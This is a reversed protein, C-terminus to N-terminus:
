IIDTHMPTFCCVSSKYYNTITYVNNHNITAPIIIYSYFYNGASISIYKCRWWSQISVALKDKSYMNSMIWRMTVTRDSRGDKWHSHLRLTVPRGIQNWGNFHVKKSMNGHQQQEAHCPCSATQPKPSLVTPPARPPSQLRHGLLESM